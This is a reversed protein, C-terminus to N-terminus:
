VMEGLAVKFRYINPTAKGHDALWIRPLRNEHRGGARDAGRDARDRSNEATPRDPDGTTASRAM